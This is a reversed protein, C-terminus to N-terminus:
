QPAGFCRGGSGVDGAVVQRTYCTGVIGQRSEQGAPRSLPSLYAASQICWLGRTGGRGVDSHRRWSTLCFLETNGWEGGGGRRDAPGLHLASLLSYNNERM